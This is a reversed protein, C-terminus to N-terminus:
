TKLRVGAPKFANEDIVEETFKGYPPYKIVLNVFM